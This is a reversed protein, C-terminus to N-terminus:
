LISKVEDILVNFHSREATTSQNESALRKSVTELKLEIISISDLVFIPKINFHIMKLIRSLLTRSLFTSNLTSILMCDYELYLSKHNNNSVSRCEIIWISLDVAVTKGALDEYSAQQCAPELISWLHKVGM